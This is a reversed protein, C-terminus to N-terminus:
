LRPSPPPSIELSDRVTVISGSELAFLTHRNFIGCIKRSPSMSDSLLGTPSVFFDSTGPIQYAYIYRQIYPGDDHRVSLPLSPSVVALFFTYNPRTSKKNKITNNLFEVSIEGWSTDIWARDEEKFHREIFGRTQELSSSPNIKEEIEVYCLQKDLPAYSETLKALDSPFYSVLCDQVHQSPPSPSKLLAKIITTDKAAPPTSHTAKADIFAHKTATITTSWTFLSRLRSLM